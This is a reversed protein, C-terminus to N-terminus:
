FTHWGSDIVFFEVMESLLQKFLQLNKIQLKKEHYGTSTCHM